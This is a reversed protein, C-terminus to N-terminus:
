KPQWIDRLCLPGHGENKKCGLCCHTGFNNRVNPNVKYLCTPNKCRRHDWACKAYFDKRLKGDIISLEGVKQECYKYCDKFDPRWVNLDNDNEILNWLEDMPMFYSRYAVFDLMIKRARSSVWMAHTGYSNLKTGPKFNKNITINSRDFVRNVGFYVMDYGKLDDLINLMDPLNIICDDEFIIVSKEPNKKLIEIHSLYCGIKGDKAKIADYIQAGTIEILKDVLEKRRTCEPVHIIYKEIGKVYESQM